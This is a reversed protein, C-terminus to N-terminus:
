LHRQKHLSPLLPRFRSSVVTIRDRSFPAQIEELVLKLLDGHCASIQISTYSITDKFQKKFPSLFSHSVLRVRQLHSNLIHSLRKQHFEQSATISPIDYPRWPVSQYFRQHQSLSQHIYMYLYTTTHRGGSVCVCVCRRSGGGGCGVCKNVVCM